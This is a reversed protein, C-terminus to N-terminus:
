KKTAEWQGDGVETLLFETAINLLKIRWVAGEDVTVSCNGSGIREVRGRHNSLDGEYDLYIRRHDRLRQLVVLTEIPWVPSRWTALDSGPHTEVLLDFHPQDIDHHWLIAYRLSPADSM